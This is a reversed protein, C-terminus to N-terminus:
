GITIQPTSANGVQINGMSKLTITPADLTISQTATFTMNGKADLTIVATKKDDVGIEISDPKITVHQGAKTSIVISLEADDFVLEHEGPTRIVRQTTPDKEESRPPKKNDNWLRGIVYAENGDGQHFAVLVEDGEQPIFYAGTDLLSVRAWLEIGGRAALRVQVRGLHKLDCNTIVRGVMVGSLGPDPGSAQQEAQFQIFEGSV